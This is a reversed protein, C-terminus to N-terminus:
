SGSETMTDRPRCADADERAARLGDESTEMVCDLDFSREATTMSAAIKNRVNAKAEEYTAGSAYITKKNDDLIGLWRSEVVGAGLYYHFFVKFQDIM